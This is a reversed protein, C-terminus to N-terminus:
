TTRAEPELVGDGEAPDLAPAGTQRFVVGKAHAPPTTLEVSERVEVVAFAAKTATKARAKWYRRSLRFLARCIALDDVDLSPYERIIEADTYGEAIFSWTAEIPIRTGDVCAQGGCVGPTTSVRGHVRPPRPLAEKAFNGLISNVGLHKDIAEPTTLIPVDIAPIFAPARMTGLKADAECCAICGCEETQKTM